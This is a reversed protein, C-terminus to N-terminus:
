VKKGDRIDQVKRSIDDFLKLKEAVEDARDASEAAAIEQRLKEQREKFYELQLERLLKNFESPIREEGLMELEFSARLSIVTKIEDLEGNSIGGDGRRREYIELYASPIFEKYNALKEELETRANVLSLIREALLERRGIPEPLGGAQVPSGSQSVGAPEDLKSSAFQATDPLQEMEEALRKETIGTRYALEKLWIEQDIKSWINKIKGLLVRISRKLDAPNGSIHNAGHVVAKSLYRNFYYEMAPKAELIAKAVYGRENAAAEGADKFKGWSVVSVNFDSASALDIARETALQGAEDNDFGIFLKDTLRRLTRLHDNTLATGSAAAVNKVGDQWAMLFDMQGELLLASNAERIASKSKWFGYLLRSKNFIPTEPSNVYKGMEPTEFEPLSRGSFGVVKGFHNHIPFMIRGRFRDLYKGRETKIALGARVIDEISFGDNLLHLTAEDSGNPAFGIEFEEITEPKLKREALYKAARPFAALMERFYNKAAANIDFLVGFQRQDAPSLQRLEVGAKEALVKLAEYFELNEYEMLFKIVDGGRNCGFCHWSQREPSVMFSPTKESHFPCLAKFNKGAPKLELYGRIFSVIDIREKIEEVPSAM